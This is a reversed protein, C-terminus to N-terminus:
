RSRTAYQKLSADPMLRASARTWWFGVISNISFAYYWIKINQTARANSANKRRMRATDNENELMKKGFLSFRGISYYAKLMHLYSGFCQRILLTNDMSIKTNYESTHAFSLCSLCLSFFHSFGAYNSFWYARALCNQPTDKTRDISQIMMAQQHRKYYYKMWNRKRDLRFSSLKALGFNHNHRYQRQVMDLQRILWTINPNTHRVAFIVFRLSLLHLLFFRRQMASFNICNNTISRFSTEQPLTKEARRIKKETLIPPKSRSSMCVCEPSKHMILEEIQHFEQSKNRFKKLMKKEIRKNPMEEATDISKQKPSFYFHRKYEFHIKSRAMCQLTDWRTKNM